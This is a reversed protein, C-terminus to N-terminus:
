FRVKIKAMTARLRGAGIAEQGPNAFYEPDDFGTREIKELRKIYQFPVEVLGVERQTEVVRHFGDLAIEPNTLVLTLKRGALDVTRISGVAQTMFGPRNNRYRIIETRNHALRTPAYGMVFSIAVTDM